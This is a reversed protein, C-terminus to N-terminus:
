DETTRREKKMASKRGSGINMGNQQDNATYDM